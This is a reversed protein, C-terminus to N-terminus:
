FHKKYFTHVLSELEKVQEDTLAMGEGESTYIWFKDAYDKECLKYDGITVINEEM